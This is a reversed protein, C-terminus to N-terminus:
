PRSTQTGTLAPQMKTHLTGPTFVTPFPLFIRICTHQTCYGLLCSQHSSVILFRRHPYLLLFRQLSRALFSASQDTLAEAAWHWGRTDRDPVARARARYERSVRDSSDEYLQPNSFFARREGPKLDMLATYSTTGPSGQKSTSRVAPDQHDSVSRGQDTEVRSSRWVFLSAGDPDNDNEQVSFVGLRLPYGGLVTDYEKVRSSTKMSKYMQFRPFPQLSYTRNISTDCFGAQINAAM